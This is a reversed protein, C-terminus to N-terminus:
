MSLAAVLLLLSYGLFQMKYLWNKTQPWSDNHLLLFLASDFTYTEPRYSDRPFIVVWFVVTQSNIVARFLYQQMSQNISQIPYQWVINILCVARELLAARSLNAPEWMRVSLLTVGGCPKLHSNGEKWWHLSFPEYLATVSVCVLHLNVRSAM